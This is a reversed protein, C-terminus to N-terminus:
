RAHATPWFSQGARRAVVLAGVVLLAAVVLAGRVLAIENAAAIGAFAWLFVLALALDGTRAVLAAGLGGVLLVVVAGWTEAGATWGAASGAVAVNLAAAATVWALWLSTPVGLAWREAGRLSMRDLRVYLWAVAAVIAFLGASAVGLWGLLWPMQWLGTLVSGVIFPVALGDYRESRAHRRAQWGAFLLLGGFIVSWVGFTWGAPTIATQVADSVEGTQRDFLLGAGALANLGVNFAAALVVAIQRVSGRM